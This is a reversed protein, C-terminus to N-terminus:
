FLIRPATDIKETGLIWLPGGKGRSLSQFCFVKRPISGKWYKDQSLM